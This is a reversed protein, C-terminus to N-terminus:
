SDHSLIGRKALIDRLIQRASFLRSKVTKEPVGMIESIEKYSYNAYHRMIIVARYDHDLEMLAEQIKSHLEAEACREDPQKDGSPLMPDLDENRRNQKLYNLSENIAIRYIWSFFRFRSDYGDLKEFAKLFVAQAVDESADQDGTMRYAVNFVVSSYRDVLMEFAREDGALCGQVLLRDSDDSMGVVM